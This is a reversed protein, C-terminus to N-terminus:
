GLPYGFRFVNEPDVKSKLVVLKAYAGPAFADAVRRAEDGANSFNLYLGGSLYPELEARYGDVYARLTAQAEATPGFGGLTLFYAADRNGVASAARDGRAFAGGVHRLENFVLPSASDTAYRVIVDIAADDLREFTESWAYTAQPATPDDSITAVEAFPLERLTNGLPTQWDLWPQMLAAGTEADGDYAARVLVQVKGRMAEPIQPLAPFKFLAFSSTLGDPLTQTWDRYFRLAEAAREGSYVLRGGYLKTVPYLSFEIATVVGFSGGGGGRVGWFLDSNETAGAHRLVGDATVLDVSYVSDAAAGYRRLLWGIGGGLSYGVVGVHPSTGLLPALGLPTVVDLVDQWVVGAGVRVTRAEADVEVSKLRWTVILLQGDAAHHIGHGSSQVAVGLGAEVAFRVAAVVDQADDPEVILAPYQNISLNWGRRVQDYSADGPVLVAGKVNSRLGEILTDIANVAM